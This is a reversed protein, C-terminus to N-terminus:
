LDPFKTCLKFLLSFHIVESSTKRKKKNPRKARRQMWKQAILKHNSRIRDRRLHNWVDIMKRERWYQIRNSQEVNTHSARCKHMHVCSFGVISVFSNYFPTRLITASLAAAATSAATTSTLPPTAVSGSVTHLLHHRENMRTHIPAPVAHQQRRSRNRRSARM